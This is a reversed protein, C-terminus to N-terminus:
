TSKAKSEPDVPLYKEVAERVSCPDSDTEVYSQQNMNFFIAQVEAPISRLKFSYGLSKRLFEDPKVHVNDPIRYIVENAGLASRIAESLSVGTNPKPIRPPLGHAVDDLIDRPVYRQSIAALDPAAEKDRRFVAVLRQFRGPTARESNPHTEQRPGPFHSIRHLGERVTDGFRSAVRSVHSCAEAIVPIRM